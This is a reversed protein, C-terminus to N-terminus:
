GVNRAAIFVAVALVFWAFLRRLKKPDIKGAMRTGVLAGAIACATVALAISWDFREYGYRLHGILGAACNISIVVLSTGVAEKIHLGGFFMLAPVILFGGGVGLFGTLVGVIAGALIAKWASPHEEDIDKQERRLLMLTGVVLMLAAFLLLLIRASVLYTLKSGFAAGLIGASGFLLATRWVVRGGRHHLLSSILSTSGVVALSMGVAPRAGIGIVYVLIPLTIISGGGGMLGLSVGILVSLILGLVLGLSPEM